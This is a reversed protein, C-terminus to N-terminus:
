IYIYLSFYLGNRPNCGAMMNRADFIHQTLETITLAQSGHSNVPAFGLIFFHLQPFPILDMTLDANLESPFRLLTTIGSMTLFVLHNLDDSTPITLGQRRICIDYLAGNVICYIEDTNNLLGFFSLTV